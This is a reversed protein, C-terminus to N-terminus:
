KADGWKISQLTMIQKRACDTYENVVASQTAHIALSFRHVKLQDSPQSKSLFSFLTEANPGIPKLISPDAKALQPINKYEKWAIDRKKRLDAAIDEIHSSLTQIDASHFQKISQNQQFEALLCEGADINLLEEEYPLSAPFEVDSSRLGPPLLLLGSCKANTSFVFERVAFARVRTYSQELSTQYKKLEIEKRAIAEELVAKQYLPLVTFYLSGITFAFLGFQSFYSIRPLWVDLWHREERTPM